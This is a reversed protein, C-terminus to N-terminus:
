KKDSYLMNGYSLTQIEGAPKEVKGLIFSIKFFFLIKRM